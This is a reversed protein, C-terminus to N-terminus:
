SRCPHAVTALREKTLVCVNIYVCLRLRMENAAEASDARKENWPPNIMCTKTIADRAAGQVGKYCRSCM